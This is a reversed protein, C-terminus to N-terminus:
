SSSVRQAQVEQCIASCFGTVFFAEAVLKTIEEFMEAYMVLQEPAPSDLLWGIVDSRGATDAVSHLVLAVFGAGLLTCCTPFQFMERRSRWVAAAGIIGYLIVIFDDIRTTINNSPLSFFSIIGRDLGEHILIKEDLALFIFGAAMILWICASSKWSFGEEKRLRYMRLTLLSCAILQLISFATVPGREDFPMRKYLQFTVELYGILGICILLIPLAAKWPLPTNNLAKTFVVCACLMPLAPLFYSGLYMTVHEGMFAFVLM